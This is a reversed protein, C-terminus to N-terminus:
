DASLWVRYSAVGTDSVFTAERIEGKELPDGSGGNARLKAGGLPSGDEDIYDIFIKSQSDSAHCRELTKFVVHIYHFKGDNPAYKSPTGKISLIKICRNSAIGTSEIKKTLKTAERKLTKEFEAPSVKATVIDCITRDKETHSEVTINKLQGASLIQILDHSTTFNTVNTSADVFVRYSEIANRIALTRALERAEKLGESDGFTYCYHGRIM